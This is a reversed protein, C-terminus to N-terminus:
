YLPISVPRFWVCNTSPSSGVIRKCLQFGSTFLLSQLSIVLTKCPAALLLSHSQQLFFKIIHSHIAEILLLAPISPPPTTTQLFPFKPLLWWVKVKSKGNLDLLRSVVITSQRNDLATISSPTSLNILFSCLCLSPLPLLLVLSVSSAELKFRFQLLWSFTM